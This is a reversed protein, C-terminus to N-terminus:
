EACQCVCCPCVREDLALMTHAVTGAYVHRFARTYSLCEHPECTHRVKIQHTRARAKLVIKMQFLIKATRNAETPAHTYWIHIAHNETSQQILPPRLPPPVLRVANHFSHNKTTPPQPVPVPRVRCGCLSSQIVQANLAYVRICLCM